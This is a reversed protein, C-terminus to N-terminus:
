QFQPASWQMNSFNIIASIENAFDVNTSLQSPQIRIVDGTANEQEFWILAEQTPTMIESPGNVLPIDAYFISAIAQASGFLTLQQALSPNIPKDLSNTFGIGSSNTGQVLTEWFRM